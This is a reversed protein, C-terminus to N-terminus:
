QQIKLNKAVDIYDRSEELVYTYNKGNYIQISFIEKNPKIKYTGDKNKILEFKIDPNEEILEITYIYDIEM